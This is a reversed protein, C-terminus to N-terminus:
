SSASLIRWATGDRLEDLTFQGYALSWAWQERDEAIMPSEIDKSSFMQAASQGTTMVPTGRLVAEVAAISNYTVVMYASKFKEYWPKGDKRSVHLPRTTDLPPPWYAGMVARVTASPPVMIISKGTRYPLITLGLKRFRDPPRDEIVTKQWGNRTVRYYGDPHGRGFYGHDMYFWGDGRSMAEEIVQQAGRMLGWVVQIGPRYKPFAGEVFEGGCGQAFAQMIVNGYTGGCGYCNILVQRGGSPM